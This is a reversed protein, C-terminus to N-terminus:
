LRSPSLQWCPVCLLWPWLFTFYPVCWWTWNNMNQHSVFLKNYSRSCKYKMFQLYSATTQTNKCQVADSVLKYLTIIRATIRHCAWWLCCLLCLPVALFGLLIGKMVRSVLRFDELRAASAMGFYTMKIHIWEWNPLSLCHHDINSYYHMNHWASWTCRGGAPCVLPSTWSSGRSQCSWTWPRRRM